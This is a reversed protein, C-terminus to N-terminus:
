GGDQMGGGADWLFLSLPTPCHGEALLLHWAGMEMARASPGASSLM